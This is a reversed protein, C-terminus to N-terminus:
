TPPCVRRRLDPLAPNDPNLRALEAVLNTAEEDCKKLAFLALALGQLAGEHQPNLNRARRFEAVATQNQPPQAFLYTLGLAVRADPDDPQQALLQTFARRAEALRNADGQRALALLTNGLAFAVERDSKDAEHARALLRAVDPLYDPAAATQAYGYLGLGLKRQMAVDDPRADAVAIARKIEDPSLAPTAAPSAVRPANYNLSNASLFGALSGFFLGAGLAV